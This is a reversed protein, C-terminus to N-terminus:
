SFSLQDTLQKAVNLLESLVINQNDTIQQLEELYWANKVPEGNYDAIKYVRRRNGRRPSLAENVTFHEKSWNPMYGKDYVGKNKSTRVMAGRPM